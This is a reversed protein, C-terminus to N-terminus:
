VEDVKYFPCGMEKMRKKIYDIDEPLLYEKYGKIKGRRVKQGEPNKTRHPRLESNKFYNSDQKKKLNEFKSFTVAEQILDNRIGKMDFFDFLDRTVTFANKHMQEYTVVKFGKLIEKSDNWLNWFFLLKDIGYYDTRIFESISGKFRDQINRYHRHCWYSVMVDLPNRVLFAVKCGKYTGINDPLTRWTTTDSIHIMHDKTISHKFIPYNSLYSYKPPYFLCEDDLGYQLCISKGMLVRLWTRGCKPFSIVFHDDM